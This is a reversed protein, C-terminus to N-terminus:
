CFRWRFLCGDSLCNAFTTMPEDASRTQKQYYNVQRKKCKPCQLQSEKAEIGASALVATRNKREWDVQVAEMQAKRAEEAQRRADDSLLEASTMTALRAPPVIGFYVNMALPVNRKFNFALTKFQEGYAPAPNTDDNNALLDFLAAEVAGALREVRSAADTASSAGGAGGGAGGGGGGGGGDGGNSDSRGGSSIEPGTSAGDGDHRSDLWEAEAAGAETQLYASVVDLLTKRLMQQVRQRTASLRSAPPLHRLIASAASSSASTSASASSSSSPLSSAHTQSAAPAIATDASSSAGRATVAAATAAATAAAELSSKAAAAAAAPTLTSAPAAAKPKAGDAEAVRKLAAVCEKAAAALPAHAHERLKAVRAGVRTRALVAVSMGRLSQLARLAASAEDLESRSIEDDVRKMLALAEYCVRDVASNTSM